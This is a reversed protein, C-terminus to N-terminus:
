YTYYKCLCIQLSSRWGGFGRKSSPVTARHQKGNWADWSFKTPLRLKGETEFHRGHSQLTKSIFILWVCSPYYIFIIVARYHGEGCDKCCQSEPRCHAPVHEWGLTGVHARSTSPSKSSLWTRNSIGPRGDVDGHNTQRKRKLLPLDEQLPCFMVKGSM